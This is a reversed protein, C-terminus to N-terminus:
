PEPPLVYHVQRAIEQFGLKPYLHMGCANQELTEIRVYAMGQGRLQAVAARLLETGIGKGQHDPDVAMNRIHGIGAAENGQSTVYGVVIGEREYVLIDGANAAIDAEVHSAKRDQWAVANILGYREEINEDISVGRFARVTIDILADHDTRLYARIM